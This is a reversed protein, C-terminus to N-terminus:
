VKEMLEVMRNSYGWENDYWANVKATKDVIMTSLADFIASHPNHIIDASVIPEDTYELIGKM